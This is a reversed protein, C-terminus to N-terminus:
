PPDKVSICNPRKKVTVWVNPVDLSAFMLTDQSQKGAGAKATVSFVPKANQTLAHQGKPLWQLHEQSLLNLKNQVKAHSVLPFSPSLGKSKGQLSNDTPYTAEAKILLGIMVSDETLSNSTVLRFGAPTGHLEGVVNSDGNALLGGYELGKLIVASFRASDPFGQLVGGLIEKKNQLTFSVTDGAYAVAPNPAGVVSDRPVVHFVIEWPDVMTRLSNFRVRVTGAADPIVGNAQFGLDDYSEISNVPWTYWGESTWALYPPSESVGTSGNYFTGYQGGEVVTAVLSDTKPIAAACETYIFPSIFGVSGRTIYDSYSAGGQIYGPNGVITIYEYSTDDPTSAPTISLLVLQGNIPTSKDFTLWLSNVSPDYTIPSGVDRGPDGYDSNTTLLFRVYEAGIQAQVTVIGNVWNGIVNSYCSMTTRQFCASEYDYAGLVVPQYGTRPSIVIHERITVQARVPTLGVFGILIATCFQICLSKANMNM